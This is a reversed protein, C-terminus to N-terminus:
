SCCAKNSVIVVASTSGCSGGLYSVLSQTELM